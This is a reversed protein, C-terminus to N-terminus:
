QSHAKAGDFAKAVVAAGPRVTHYISSVDVWGVIGFVVSTAITLRVRQTVSLNARVFFVLAGVASWIGAFVIVYVM